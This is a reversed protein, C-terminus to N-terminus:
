SFHSARELVEKGVDHYLEGGPLYPPTLERYALVIRRDRIDERLIFHEWDYRPEGYFVLLSRRPLPIRIVARMKPQGCAYSEPATAVGGGGGGTGPPAAFPNFLVTGHDDVIRPYKAVDARNYRKKATADEATAARYPTLTLVSDSLLNLQVIREGWVWADDVHPEICAGTEPRYEIACQEVTRYGTLTAVTAFRDQVFRTALPFGSFRGAKVKRGNFNAKPGFNQKRRGSQSADWPLEDCDRVLAAEEAESVFDEIIQVFPYPRGDDHAAHESHFAPEVNWGPYLKRCAPCFVFKATLDEIKELAM